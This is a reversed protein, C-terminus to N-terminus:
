QANGLAMLLDLLRVHLDQTLPHADGLASRLGFIGPGAPHHIM